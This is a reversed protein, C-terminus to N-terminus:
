FTIHFRAQSGIGIAWNLTLALVPNIKGYFAMYCKTTGFALGHVLSSTFDQRIIIGKYFAPPSNGRVPTYATHYVVCSIRRHLSINWSSQLISNTYINYAIGEAYTTCKLIYRPSVQVNQQLYQILPCPYCKSM